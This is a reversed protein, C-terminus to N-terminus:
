LKWKIKKFTEMDRRLNGVKEYIIFINEKVKNFTIIISAKMDEDAGQTM